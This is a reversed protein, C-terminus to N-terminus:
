SEIRTTEVVAAVLQLPRGWVTVHGRAGTHAYAFGFGHRLVLRAVQDGVTPFRQAIAEAQAPRVFTSLGMQILVNRRELVARHGGRRTTRSSHGLWRPM